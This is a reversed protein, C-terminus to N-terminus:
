GRANALRSVADLLAANHFPKSLTLCSDFRAALEPDPFAAVYLLPVRGAFALFQEPHNTILLSFTPTNKALMEEAHRTGTEVCQFGRRSLLNRIYTCIFPDEVMLVPAPQAAPSPAAM